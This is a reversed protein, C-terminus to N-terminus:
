RPKAVQQLNPGSCTWRRTITGSPNWSPRIRGDDDIWQDLEKLYTGFLKSVRRYAALLRAIERVSETEHECLKLIEDAGFAPAGTKTRGSSKVGLIDRFLRIVQAPSAPNFNALGLASTAQSLASALRQTEQGVEEALKNKQDQDIFVGRQRMRFAIDCEQILDQYEQMQAPSSQLQGFFRHVMLYWTTYADKACYQARLQAKEDSQWPNKSAARFDSKFRPANTLLSAVFGLDKKLGPYLVTFAIMTDHCVNELPFGSHRLVMIDFLLNHLVKPRPGACLRRVMDTQEPTLHEPQLCLSVSADAFAIDKLTSKYSLGTTETDIALLGTGSLLYLLTEHILEQPSEGTVISPWKWPAVDQFQIKNIYASIVPLIEDQKTMQKPHPIGIVPCPLISSAVPVGMWKSFPALGTSAKLAEAGFALVYPGQFDKLDDQWHLSCASLAVARDQPALSKATGCLLPATIICDELTFGKDALCRGLFKRQFPTLLQDQKLETPGPQEVLLALKARSPIQRSIPRHTRNSSAPDLWNLPCNKCAAESIM